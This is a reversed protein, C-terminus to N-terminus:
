ARREARSRNRVRSAALAARCMQNAYKFWFVLKWSELIVPLRAPSRSAKWSKGRRSNNRRHHSSALLKNSENASKKVDVSYAFSPTCNKIFEVANYWYLLTGIVVIWETQGSFCLSNCGERFYVERWKWTGLKGLFRGNLKCKRSGFEKSVVRRLPM